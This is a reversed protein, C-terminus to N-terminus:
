FNNLQYKRVENINSIRTQNNDIIEDPVWAKYKKNYICKCKLNEQTEFLLKLKKSNYLDNILANDYFMLKNDKNLIYLEYLECKETKKIIFTHKIKNFTNDNKSLVFRCKNSKLSFYKISYIDYPIKQPIDEDIINNRIWVLSINYENLIDLKYDYCFFNKFFKLKEKFTNNIFKGKYYIIDEVIINTKNNKVCYLITGNNNTLDKNFRITTKKGNSLTKDKNIDIIICKPDNNIKTFWLYCKPGYPIFMCADYNETLTNCQKYKSIDPFNNILM